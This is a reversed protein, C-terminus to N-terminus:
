RYLRCILYPRYQESLQNKFVTYTAGRTNFLTASINERTGIQEGYFDNLIM